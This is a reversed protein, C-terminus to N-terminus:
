PVLAADGADVVLGLVKGLPALRKRQAFVEGELKFISEVRHLDILEKIAREGANKPESFWRDVARPIRISADAHRFGYVEKFQDLDITAGTLKLYQQYAAAIQSSYCMSHLRDDTECGRACHAAGPAGM